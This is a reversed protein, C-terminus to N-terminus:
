DSQNEGGQGPGLSSPESVQIFASASCNDLSPLRRKAIPM